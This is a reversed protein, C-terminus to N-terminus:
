LRVSVSWCNPWSVVPLALSDLCADDVLALRFQLLNHPEIAHFQEARDGHLPRAAWVLRHADPQECHREPCRCRLLLSQAATTANDRTAAPLQSTCESLAMGSQLLKRLPTVLDDVLGLGVLAAHKRQLPWYLSAIANPV